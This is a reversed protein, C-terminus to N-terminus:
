VSYITPLTLHTYSVAVATPRAGAALRVAAVHLMLEARIRHHLPNDHVEGLLVLPASAIRGALGEPGIEQGEADFARCALPHERLTVPGSDACGSLRAEAPSSALAAIIAVVRLSVIRAHAIGIKTM